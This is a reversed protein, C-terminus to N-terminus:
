PRAGTVRRANVLAGRRRRPRLLVEAKGTSATRGDSVDHQTQPTISALAYSGDRSNVAGIGTGQPM